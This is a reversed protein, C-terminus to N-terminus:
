SSILLDPELGFRVFAVLQTLRIPFRVEVGVLDRGAYVIRAIVIFGDDFRSVGFLGVEIRKPSTAGVRVSPDLPRTPSVNPGGTSRTRSHGYERGIRKGDYGHEITPHARGGSQGFCSPLRVLVCVM